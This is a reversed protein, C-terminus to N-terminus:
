CGRRRPRAEAVVRELEAVRAAVRECRREAEVIRQLLPKLSVDLAAEIETRLGQVLLPVLVRANVEVRPWDRRNDDHAPMPASQQDAGM